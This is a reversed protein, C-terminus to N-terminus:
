EKRKTSEDTQQIQNKGIKVRIHTRTRTHTHAHAHLIVSNYILTKKSSERVWMFYLCSYIDFLYLCVNWFANDLANHSNNVNKGSKIFLYLFFNIYHAINTEIWKSIFYFSSYYIRLHFHFLFAVFSADENFCSLKRKAM